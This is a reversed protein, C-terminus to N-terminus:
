PDQRWPLSALVWRGQEHCLGYRFPPTMEPLVFREDTFWVCSPERDIRYLRPFQAFRRYEALADHEWVERVLPAPHAGLRPITRWELQEPTRYHDMMAALWAPGPPAWAPGRLRLYATHYLGDEEVLLKWNLPSLPQALATVRMSGPDPQAGAYAAAIRLAQQQFLLQLGVYGLLLVTFLRASAVPRYRWSLLLGALLIGTFILDINFTFDWHVRATSLPMWIRTGYATVLDGLIHLGIALALLWFLETLPWRRRSALHLLWAGAGAWLPLLVLSHTVGRHWNFYFLADVWHLVFDSDPFACALAGIWTRTALTMRQAPRHTARALLAGSLTHTLTDM